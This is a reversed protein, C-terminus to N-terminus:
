KIKILKIVYLVMLSWIFPRMFLFFSGRCIFIGNTVLSIYLIFWVVNKKIHIGYLSKTVLRGLFYFLLIVVIIGGGIYADAVINTGLGNPPNSGFHEITIYLSSRM